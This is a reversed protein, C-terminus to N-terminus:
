LKEHQQRGWTSLNYNIPKEHTWSECQTYSLWVILLPVLFPVKTQVGLFIRSWLGWFNVWTEWGSNERLGLIVLTKIKTSGLWKPDSIWLSWVWNKWLMSNGCRKTRTSDLWIQNLSERNAGAVGLMVNRDPVESGEWNAERHPWLM